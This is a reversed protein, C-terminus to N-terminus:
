RKTPRQYRECFLRIKDYTRNHTDGGQLFRRVVSTSIGTGKGVAHANLGKQRVLRWIYNRRAAAKRQHYEEYEEETIWTM